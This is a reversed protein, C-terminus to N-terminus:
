QAAVSTPALLTPGDAIRDLRVHIRGPSCTSRMKVPAFFDRVNIFLPFDWTRWEVSMERWLIANALDLSAYRTIM